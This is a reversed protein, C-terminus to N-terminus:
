SRRLLRRGDRGQPRSGRSAAVTEIVDYGDLLQLPEFYDFAGGSCGTGRMNVDVVAYGLLNAIQSIGRQAGDPNAYGYGSYEVLTPYPGPGAPLHVDIALKTGDRTTLYGYGRKPIKQSYLKKSPPASRASIVSVRKSGLRYTGPTLKRCVAGGLKGARKSIHKSGRVLTLKAGKRAGTVQVQEVSGRAKVAAAATSPLALALLLALALTRSM